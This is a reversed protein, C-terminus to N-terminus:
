RGANPGQAAGVPLAIVPDKGKVELGGCDAAVPTADVRDLVILLLIVLVVRVKPELDQFRSGLNLTFASIGDVTGWAQRNRHTVNEQIVHWGGGDALETV